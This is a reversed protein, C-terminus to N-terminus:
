SVEQANVADKLLMAIPHQVNLASILGYGDIVSYFNESEVNEFPAECLKMAGCPGLLGRACRSIASIVLYASEM